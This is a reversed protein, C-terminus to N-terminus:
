FSTSTGTGYRFESTGSISSQQKGAAGYRPTGRETSRRKDVLIVRGLGIEIQEILQSAVTVTDRNIKELTIKLYELAARCYCELDFAENEDTRNKHWEYRAFGGKTYVLVRQETFLQHFYRDSFGCVDEGNPLCPYHCFGPGPKAIGIRTVFDDKITDTGLRILWVGEARERRKGGIIIPHGSGGTGQIPFVRPHRMKCYKYVVDTAHGGSDVFMMRVKATKGDSYRWLRHYVFKDLKDWVDTLPYRPDGQFEGTEIAWSERGRGWGTVKYALYSDQVDVGATLLLVGDPLEAGVLHCGYPERRHHYLDIREQNDIRRFQRALKTNIFARMLSLDGLEAVRKAVKYVQCIDTEWDLWPSDLGSMMFGKATPHSPNRLRWRWRPEGADSSQWEYQHYHSGCKECGVTAAEPDMREWALAQFAQCSPNPCRWELVGQNSDEWMQCIGSEGEEVLPSSIFVEKRDFFTTTRAAALATPNNESISAAAATKIALDVEDFIVIPVPRSALSTGSNAGVLNLFGAPYKKKRITSGGGEVGTGANSVKEKLRPCMQIMPDLREKSFSEALEITPMVLLISRPNIDITHGILNLVVSETGGSQTPKVLIVRQCPDSPSCADMVARMAPFLDSNWPGPQAAFEPPIKRYLDAWQSITLEPPPELYCFVQEWWAFGKESWDEWGEVIDETRRLKEILHKYRVQRFYDRSARERNIRAREGESVRGGARVYTAAEAM